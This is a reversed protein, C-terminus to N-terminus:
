AVEAGRPVRMRFIAGGEPANAAEITGGHGEVIRRALALGLGTGRVRKSYFPEFLREEEGPEIGPGRDRVELILTEGDRAAHVAIAADAPSAERANALLNVLVQSMRVRDLSWSEAGHAVDIEVPEAGAHDAAERILTAVDEARRDLKGSRAFDLVQNTLRELREAERVVTEAIPRQAVDRDLRELLVQANGKLSAIPNRLEHGLVASMQGLAKLRRDAALQAEARDARVSARWVLLSVGLLVLAASSSFVAANRAGGVLERASRAEFEFMLARAESPVARLMRRRGSRPPGPPPGRRRPLPSVYRVVDGELREVAGRPPPAPLSYPPASLPTGAEAIPRGSADLLAAYRIGEDEGLEDVLWALADDTSMGRAVVRGFSREISFAADRALVRAAEVASVVAHVGSLVLGIGMVVILVLL